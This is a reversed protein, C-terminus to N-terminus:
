RAANTSQMHTISHLKTQLILPSGPAPCLLPSLGTVQPWYHQHQPLVHGSGLPLYRGALLWPLWAAPRPALAPNQDIGAREMLCGLLSPHHGESHFLQKAAVETSLNTIQRSARVSGFSCRYLKSCFRLVPQRSECPPKIANNKARYGCHNSAFGRGLSPHHLCTSDTLSPLFATSTRAARGPCHPALRLVCLLACDLLQRVPWAPSGM